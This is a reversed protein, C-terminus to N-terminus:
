GVDDVPIQTRTQPYQSLKVVDIQLLVSLHKMLKVSRTEFKISFDPTRVPPSSKVSCLLDRLVARVARCWRGPPEHEVGASSFVLSVAGSSFGDPPVVLSWRGASGNPTENVGSTM